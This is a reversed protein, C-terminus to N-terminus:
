KISHNISIKVLKRFHAPKWNVVFTFFCQTETEVFYRLCLQTEFNLQTFMIIYHTMYVLIDGFPKRIVIILRFHFGKLEITPLIKAYRSILLHFIIKYYTITNRLGYNGLITGKPSKKSAQSAIPPRQHQGPLVVVNSFYM